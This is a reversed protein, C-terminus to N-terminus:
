LPNYNPTPKGDASSSIQPSKSRVDMFPREWKPATESPPQHFYNTQGWFLTKFCRRDPHCYSCSNSPLSLDRGLLPTDLYWWFSTPLYKDMGAVFFDESSDNTITKGTAGLITCTQSSFDRSYFTLVAYTTCTDVLFNQSKGQWMWNYGQSWGWSMITIQSLCAPQAVETRNFWGSPLSPEQSQPEQTGLASHWGIVWNIANAALAKLLSTEM